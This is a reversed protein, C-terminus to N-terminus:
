PQSDWGPVKVLYSPGYLGDDFVEDAARLKGLRKKFRSLVFSIDQRHMDHGLDSVAKAVDDLNFAEEDITRLAATVIETKNGHREETAEQVPRTRRRLPKGADSSDDNAPHDESKPPSAAHRAKKWEQYRVLGARMEQLVAIEADIQTIDEEVAM